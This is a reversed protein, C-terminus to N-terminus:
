ASARAQAQSTDGRNEATVEDVVTQLEKLIDPHKQSLYHVVRSNGLLKALYGRALMLVLHDTGYSAEIQKIQRQLSEMETIMQTAQETKLGRVAKPKEPNLLQSPHTAALLAQSYAVSCNNAAVMLEAVEVQRVPQMRRLIKFANATIQRDKLMDVAEPCIGDLMNLRQRVKAVDVDLVKAIREESVGHKIARLIMLHGQITALPNVQKNYTFAEDDTAVLCRAETIGLSKLIDWRLHGDRILYKGPADKVPFVALPEVLGIESISAAIRKYIPRVRLRSVIETSPLLDNLSVLICQPLFAMKVSEPM